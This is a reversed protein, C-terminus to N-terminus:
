AKASQYAACVWNRSVGCSIRSNGRSSTSSPFAPNESRARQTLFREGDLWEIVATGAVLAGPMAPHTAETKWTGVLRNLPKLAPETTM